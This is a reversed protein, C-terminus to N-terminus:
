TYKSTKYPYHFFLLFAELCSWDPAVTDRTQKLPFTYVEFYKHKKYTLLPLLHNITSVAVFVRQEKSDSRFSFFAVQM